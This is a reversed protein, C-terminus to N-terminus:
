TSFLMSCSPTWVWVRFVSYIKRRLINKLSFHSKLLNLTVQQCSPLTIFLSQHFSMLSFSSFVVGHSMYLLHKYTRDALFCIDLHLEILLFNNPLPASPALLAKRCHYLKEVQSPCLAPLIIWYFSDRVAICKWSLNPWGSPFVKPWLQGNSSLHMGELYTQKLVRARSLSLAARPSQPRQTFSTTSKSSCWWSVWDSLNGATPSRLPM